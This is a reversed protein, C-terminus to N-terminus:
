TLKVDNVPSAKGRKILPPNHNIEVQSGKRHSQIQQQSLVTQFSSFYYGKLQFSLNDQEQYQWLPINLM